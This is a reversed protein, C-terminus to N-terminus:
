SPAEALQKQFRKRAWRYLRQDEQMSRLVGCGVEDRENLWSLDESPNGSINDRRMPLDNTPIENDVLKQRLLRLSEDMQEVIGVFFFNRLVNRAVRQRIRWYRRDAYEFGYRCQVEYRAFFNTTYNERFNLFKDTSQQILWRASDRLSLEPM